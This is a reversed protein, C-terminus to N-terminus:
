ERAEMTTITTNKWDRTVCFIESNKNKNQQKQKILLIGCRNRSAYFTDEYNCDHTKYSLNTFFVNNDNM